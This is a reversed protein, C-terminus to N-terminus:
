HTQSKLLRRLYPALFDWYAPNLPGLPNEPTVPHWAAGRLYREAALDVTPTARTDRPAILPEALFLAYRAVGTGPRVRMRRLVRVPVGTEELVERAAAQALTEGREVGGGPLLWFRQGTSPEGHLVLLIWGRHLVLARAGKLAAGRRPARVGASATSRARSSLNSPVRARSANRIPPM